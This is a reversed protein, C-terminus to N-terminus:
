ILSYFLLYHIGENKVEEFSSEQENPGDCRYWKRDKKRKCFAIFQNKQIYTVVGILQYNYSINKDEIFNTLNLKENFDFKIDFKPESGRDLYIIVVKPGM